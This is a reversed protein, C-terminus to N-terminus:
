GTIEVFRLLATELPMVSIGSESYEENGLYLLHCKATPYDELFLNLSALDEGRVRDAHKLEFAHLGRPGYLVFDVENRAQTRWYFISYELNHYENLARAQEYFFTEVSAGPALEPHDLPGKPRISNFVGCDFFLFKPHAILRRKARKSFVPLRVALLLDELITFYDQIVKVSISSERAVEAMTLVEAQSFSAVELFRSFAALNRTLGEQQVEERLYTAVYSALYAAPDQETYVCPLSGFRLSHKLSFSEGLEEVTLPHM